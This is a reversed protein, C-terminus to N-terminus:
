RAHTFLEFSPRVPSPLNPPFRSHDASLRPPGQGFNLLILLTISYMSSSCILPIFPPSTRLTLNNNNNLSCYPINKLQIFYYSTTHLLISSQTPNIIPSRRTQDFRTICSHTTDPTLYFTISSSSWLPLISLSTDGQLTSLARYVLIFM